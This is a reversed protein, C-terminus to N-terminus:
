IAHTEQKHKKYNKAGYLLEDCKPCKFEHGGKERNVKGTFDGMIVPTLKWNCTM